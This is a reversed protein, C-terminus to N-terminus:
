VTVLKKTKKTQTTIYRSVRKYENWFATRQEKNFIPVLESEEEGGIDKFTVKKIMKSVAKTFAMKRGFVLNCSDTYNQTVIGKSVEEKAGDESQHRVFCTISALKKINRDLEGNSEHCSTNFHVLFVDGNVDVKM